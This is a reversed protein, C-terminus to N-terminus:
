RRRPHGRRHVRETGLPDRRDLPRRTLRSPVGLSRRSGARRPVDGCGRRPGGPRAREHWRGAPGGRGLPRRTCGLPGHASSSVDTARSTGEPEHPLPRRVLSVPRGTGATGRSATRRADLQLHELWQNADPAAGVRGGPRRYAAPHGLARRRWRLRALARRALRHPPLWLPRRGHAARAGHDARNAATARRSGRASSRPQGGVRGVRGVPVGRLRFGWGRRAPVSDVPRRHGRRVRGHPRCRAERPPVRLVPGRLRVTPTRRAVGAISRVGPRHKRFAGRHPRDADADGPLHGGSQGGRYAPVRVVDGTRRDAMEPDRTRPLVAVGRAGPRVRGPCAERDPEPHLGSSRHPGVRPPHRAGDLRRLIGTVAPGGPPARVRHDPQLARGPRLRQLRRYPRHRARRDSGGAPRDASRRTRRVGMGGSRRSAAGAPGPAGPFHHPLARHRPDAMARGAGPRVGRHSHVGRRGRRGAGGGRTRCPRDGGATKQTRLGADIEDYDVSSCSLRALM